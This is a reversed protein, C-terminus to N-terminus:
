GAEKILYFDPVCDTFAVFNMSTIKTVSLISPVSTLLDEM